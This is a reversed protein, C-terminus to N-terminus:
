SVDNALRRDSASSPSSSFCTPIMHPTSLLLLRSVVVVFWLLSHVSPTDSDTPAKISCGRPARVSWKALFVSPLPLKRSVVASHPSPCGRFRPSDPSFACTSACVTASMLASRFCECEPSLLSLTPTLFARECQPSLAFIPWYRLTAFNKVFCSPLLRM